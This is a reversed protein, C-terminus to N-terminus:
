FTVIARVADPPGHGSVTSAPFPHGKSAAPLYIRHGVAQVRAAEIRGLMPEGRRVLQTMRGDTFSFRVWHTGASLVRFRVRAITFRGSAPPSGLSSVVLDIWGVDQNVDSRFVSALATGPEVAVAALAKPDYDLFIAAADVVQEDADAIVELDILEGATVVTNTPVISVTVDGPIVTGTLPVTVAAPGSNPRLNAGIARM